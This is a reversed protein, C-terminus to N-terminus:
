RCHRSTAPFCLLSHAGTCTHSHTVRQELNTVAVCHYAAGKQVISVQHIFMTLSVSFGRDPKVLDSLKPASKAWINPSIPRVFTGLFNWFNQSKFFHGFLEWFINLKKQPSESWNQFFVLSFSCKKPLEM